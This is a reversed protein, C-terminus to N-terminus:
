KECCKKTKSNFTIQQNIKMKKNYNKDIKDEEKKVRSFLEHATYDFVEQINQNMFASSEFFKFSNEQALKEGEEKLVKREEELDSKNGVLVKVINNGISQDIQSIWDQVKDFTHLDIISYVLIIAHAGKFFQKTVAAYRDQGATDWLQLIIKSGDIVMNKKKLDVGLTTIQETSFSNDTYRILICTKGVAAEGLLLVKFLHDYKKLDTSM